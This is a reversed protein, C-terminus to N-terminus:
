TLLPSIRPLVSMTWSNEHQRLCELMSVRWCETLIHWFIRCRILKGSVRWHSDYCGLKQCAIGVHLTFKLFNWYHPDFNIYTFFYDIIFSSFSFYLRRKEKSEWKGHYVIWSRFKKEEELMNVHSKLIHIVQKKKL